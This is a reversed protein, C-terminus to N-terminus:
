KNNLAAQATVHRLLSIVGTPHYMGATVGMKDEM